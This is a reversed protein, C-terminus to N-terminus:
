LPVTKTSNNQQWYVNGWTDPYGEYGAQYFNLLGGSNTGEAGWSHLYIILCRDYTVDSVEGM